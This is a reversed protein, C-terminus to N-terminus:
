QQSPAKERANCYPALVLTSDTPPDPGQVIAVGYYFRERFKVRDGLRASAEFDKAHHQTKLYLNRGQVGFTLVKQNLDELRPIRVSSSLSRGNWGFAKKRATSAFCIYFFDLDMEVLDPETGRKHRNQRDFFMGALEAICNSDALGVVLNTRLGRKVDVRLNLNSLPVVRSSIAFYFGRCARWRTDKGRAGKWEWACRSAHLMFSVSTHMWTQVRIAACADWLSFHLHAKIGKPAATESDM